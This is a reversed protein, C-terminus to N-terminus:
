LIAGQTLSIKFFWTKSATQNTTDYSSDSFSTCPDFYFLKKVLCLNVLKNFDTHHDNNM